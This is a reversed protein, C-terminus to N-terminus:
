KIRTYLKKAQSIIKDGHTAFLEAFVEEQQLNKLYATGVCLSDFYAHVLEHTVVNLCLEGEDFVIERMDACTYAASGKPPSKREYNDMSLVLVKWTQGLIDIKIM